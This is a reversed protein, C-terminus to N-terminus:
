SGLVILKSAGSLGTTLEEYFGCDHVLHVCSFMKSPYSSVISIIGTNTHVQMHIHTFSSPSTYSQPMICIAHFQLAHHKNTPWSPTLKWVTAPLPWLRSGQRPPQEIGPVDDHPSSTLSDQKWSLPLARLWSSFYPCLPDIHPENDWPCFPVPDTKSCKQM